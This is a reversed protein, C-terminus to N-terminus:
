WDRYKKDLLLQFVYFQADNLTSNFFRHVFQYEDPMQDEKNGKRYGIVTLDSGDRGRFRQNKLYWFDGDQLKRVLTEWEEITLKKKYQLDIKPTKSDYPKSFVTYHFLVSDGNKTITATKYYPTNLISLIFRYGEEINLEQLKPLPIDTSWLNWNEREQDPLIDKQLKNFFASDNRLYAKLVQHGLESTDYQGSTDIM